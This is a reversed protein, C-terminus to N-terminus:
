VERTSEREIFELFADKMDGYYASSWRSDRVFAAILERWSAEGLRERLEPFSAEVLQSAGLFVLHRYARMGNDSYGLPVEDSVGRVYNYFDTSM